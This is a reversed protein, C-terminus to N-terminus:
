YLRHIWKAEGNELLLTQIPGGVVPINDRFRGLQIESNVVFDSFELMTRVDKIKIALGVGDDFLPLICSDVRWVFGSESIKIDDNRKIDTYLLKAKGDEFGGCALHIRCNEKTKGPLQTVVSSFREKLSIEGSVDHDMSLLWDCIPIGDVTNYGSTVIGIRCKPLYVVKQFGDQWELVSGNKDTVVSRSESALVIRNNKIIGHVYSMTLNRRKRFEEEMERQRIEESSVARYSHSKQDREFNYRAQGAIDINKSERESIGESVSVSERKTYQM